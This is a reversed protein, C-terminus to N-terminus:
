GARENCKESEYWGATSTRARSAAWERVMTPDYRAYRGIKLFPPGCGRWRWNALTQPDLGLFEAAEQSSWLRDTM